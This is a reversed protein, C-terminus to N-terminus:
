CSSVEELWAPEVWEAQGRKPLLRVDGDAHKMVLRGVFGRLSPRVDDINRVRYIKGFEATERTLPISSKGITKAPRDKVEGVSKPKKALPSKPKKRTITAQEPKTGPEPEQRERRRRQKLVLDALVAAQKAVDRLTERLYLGNEDGLGTGEIAALVTVDWMQQEDENKFKM